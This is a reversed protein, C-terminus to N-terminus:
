LFYAVDSVSYKFILKSKNSLANFMPIVITNEICRIQYHWCMVRPHLIKCPYKM